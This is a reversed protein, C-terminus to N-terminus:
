RWLAPGLQYAVLALNSWAHLLICPWLRGTRWRLWGLTLALPLLTLPRALANLASANRPAPELGVHALCFILATVVITAAPGLFSSARAYVEGRLLLEEAIPALLVAFAFWLTVMTPSLFPSIRVGQAFNVNLAAATATVWTIHILPWLPLLWLLRRTSARPLTPEAFGLRRALAGPGAGRCALAALGVVLLAMVGQRLVDTVVGRAALEALPLRPRLQTPMFPDIGLRWDGVLRVLPGAIFTAAVLIVLPVLVLGLMRGFWALSAAALTIPPSETGSHASAGGESPPLDAM